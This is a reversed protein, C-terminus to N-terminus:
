AQTTLLERLKARDPKRSRGSVPIRDIVVVDDPLASTDIMGPLARAVRDALDTPADANPVLALVVREDGIEDPVGILLAQGVGALTCITSEFLGPYINTNGRIIMDKKRGLLVIQNDEIMATDGTALEQLPKQGLYGSCMGPGSLILEGDAATRARVSPLITGLLDGEAARALKEKASAFAIPLMETTGYVSIPEVGPLTAVVRRLLSPAM